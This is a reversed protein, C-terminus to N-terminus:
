KMQEKYAQVYADYVEKYKPDGRFQYMQIYLHVEDMTVNKLEATSKVASYYRPSVLEVKPNNYGFTDYISKIAADFKHSCLDNGHECM